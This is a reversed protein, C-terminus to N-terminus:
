RENFWVTPWGVYPIRNTVKGIIMDKEIIFDDINENADGKTYYIVIHKYDIIKVVRHVIIVKEHKFAIVDGEKPKKNHQDIIVVDGKLIKPTMSGSAIAIAYFRFYGSYFYVLILIIVVPLLLGKFRKKRYDRPIKDDKKLEFFKLIRYTFILPTLLYIVSIVYESPNPLIPILYPYLTFILDFIIVPKYGMKKSIYSYCINRTLTPLFTLAVYKLVDFQSKFRTVAFGNTLDLCIFLIVVLITCLKNEDAKCLMNYRFVERLSNYLIIPIIINKMGDITYYNPTKALGTIIGLLYYLIFFMITYFLIEFLIDTLYRHRDKEMVFYFNFFVLLGIVFLIIKYGSLFNIFFTNTILIAFLVIIFVLLKKYGLKM